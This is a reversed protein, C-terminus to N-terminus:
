SKENKNEGNVKDIVEKSIIIPPPLPFNNGEQSNIVKAAPKGFARDLISNAANIRATPNNATTAVRYLVEIMDEAYEAAREIVEQERKLRGAPNPSNPQGKIYWGGVARGAEDITGAAWRWCGNKDQVAGEPPTWEEQINKM